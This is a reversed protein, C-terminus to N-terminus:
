ENAPYLGALSVGPNKILTLWANAVPAVQIDPNNTPKIETQGKSSIM